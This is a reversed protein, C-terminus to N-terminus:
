PHLIYVQERNKAPEESTCGQGQLRQSAEQAPLSLELSVVDLRPAGPANYPFGEM